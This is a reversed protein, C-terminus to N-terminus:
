ELRTCTCGCIVIGFFSWVCRRMTQTQPKYKCLQICFGGNVLELFPSFILVYGRKKCRYSPFQSHNLLNLGEPHIVSNELKSDLSGM